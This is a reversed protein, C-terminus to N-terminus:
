IGLGRNNKIKKFNVQLLLYVFCLFNLIVYSYLLPILIHWSKFFGFIGPVAITIGTVILASYSNLRTSVKGIEQAYGMKTKFEELSEDVGSPSVPSVKNKLEKPEKAVKPLLTLDLIGTYVFESPYILLNLGLIGKDKKLEKASRLGSIVYDYTRKWNEGVEELLCDKDYFLIIGRPFDDKNGFGYKDVMKFGRNLTKLTFIYRMVEDWETIPLYYFIFFLIVLLSTLLYYNKTCLPRYGGENTNYLVKIGNQIEKLKRTTLGSLDKLIFTICVAYTGMRNLLVDQNVGIQERQFTQHVFPNFYAEGRYAYSVRKYNFLSRDNIKDNLMIKLKRNLYASLRYRYTLIYHKEKYQLSSGLFDITGYVMPVYLLM